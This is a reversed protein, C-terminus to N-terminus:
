RSHFQEDKRVRKIIYSTSDTITQLEIELSCDMNGLGIKRYIIDYTSQCIPRGLATDLDVQLAPMVDCFRKGNLVDYAYKASGKLTGGSNLFFIVKSYLFAIIKEPLINLSCVYNILKDVQQESAHKDEDEELSISPDLTTLAFYEQMSDLIPDEKNAYRIRFYDAIKNNVIRLLWANRQAPSLDASTRVFKALSIWVALLIHQIVDDDDPYTVMSAVRPRIDHEIEELVITYFTKGAGSRMGDKLKQFFQESGFIM